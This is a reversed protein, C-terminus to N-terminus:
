NTALHNVACYRLQKRLFMGTEFNFIDLKLEFWTKGLKSYNIRSLVSDSYTSDPHPYGASQVRSSRAFAKINNTM